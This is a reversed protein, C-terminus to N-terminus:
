FRLIMGTNLMIIAYALVYAADPDVIPSQANSNHWHESFHQVIVSILPGEGPLRFAELFIRLAEDLRLGALDFCEVFAQLIVLNDRKSIYEGIQKKDLHPNTKMFNAIESPEDKILGQDQLYSVGKSPKTNFLETATTILKKKYKLSMLQEHSSILYEEINPNEESKESETKNNEVNEIVTM